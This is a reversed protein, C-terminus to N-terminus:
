ASDFYFVVECFYFAFSLQIDDYGVVAQQENPPLMATKKYFPNFLKYNIAIKM